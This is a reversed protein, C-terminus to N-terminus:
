GILSVSKLRPMGDAYMEYGQVKNSFATYVNQFVLYITSRRARILEIADAYLKKRADVNNEARAKDLLDDIKPDSANAYNDSGKSHQFSYINGDPDVRGSWPNLSLEFKGEGITSLATTNELPRVSVNFGTERAQSQILEGLRVNQTGQNVMFDVNIPTPLGSQAVLERARAVDRAPCKLDKPAFPSIPPIPGCALEHLGGYVIQNIQARDLSLEFAERLRPDRALASEPQGAPKGIGETNSINVSLAVYGYSTVRTVKLNQDGQLSRIDATPLRDVIQFDGSRLNSTRVNEEATVKFIVRDLSVKDADYYNPARELVVRDGAVREVFQFPGVCVPANTFNEGLKDLQAPSLIMGARDALTATLPALPQSLTLRVTSPDVVTVDSIARLESSRRSGNLTRHRDLSTKVAAADLTTGDNFKVGQRIKIAVTQGNASVEPLAAALQPVVENQPNLDYLKECMNTFVLRGGATGGFTPDMTDTDEFMSLTLTGGRGAAAGAAPKAAAPPPGPGGPQASPAAAAKAPETPRAAPAAVATPSAAPAPACGSAALLCASALLAIPMSRRHPQVAM